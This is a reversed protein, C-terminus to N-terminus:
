ITSSHAIVMHRFQMEKCGQAQWSQESGSSCRQQNVNVPCLPGAHPSTRRCSACRSRRSWSHRGGPGRRQPSSLLKILAHEPLSANCNGKWTKSQRRNAPTGCSHRSSCASSQKAYPARACSPTCNDQSEICPSPKALGVSSLRTNEVASNRIAVRLHM